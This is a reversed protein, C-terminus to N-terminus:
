GFLQTKLNQSEENSVFLQADALHLTEEADRLGGGRPM